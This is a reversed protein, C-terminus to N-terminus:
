PFLSFNESICVSYSCYVNFNVDVNFSIEIQQEYYCNNSTHESTSMHNPDLFM